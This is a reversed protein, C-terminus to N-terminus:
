KQKKKMYNEIRDKWSRDILREARMCAVTELGSM